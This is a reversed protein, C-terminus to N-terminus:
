QFNKRALSAAVEADKLSQSQRFAEERHRMQQSHTEEAIRLKTSAEVMQRQLTDPLNNPNAPNGEQPQGEQPQGEVSAQEAADRQLKELRKALNWAMEDIQQLRKKIAPYDPEGVMFEAHASAHTHLPFLKPAAEEFIQEGSDIDALLQELADLHVPFQVAHMESPLVQVQNGQMLLINELEATKAEMPPRQNEPAPTYRDAAEVGGITRTLDRIAQQRGQPDFNASLEYVQRMIASRAASSGNGIARVVRVRSPDIAALAEEPVGRAVCRARFEAVYQGGPDQPFYDQRAVRRVTERLLREWPQYFLSLAAVSINALSELHAQVEYRTREKDQRFTAETSYQGAQQQLLTNLDGLGPIISQGFNPYDKQIFKVNPPKIVFPGFHILSLDEIADESEPELMLMSSTMLSDFFRCRLRNLAQVISFVKHGLGRISHFYGNSGVGYCFTNFVQSSNEFRSRNVYLFDDSDELDEPFIYQSVTGNLEKVWMFVLKVESAYAAGTTGLDNNKFERQLTEWENTNANATDGQSAKMLAKKVASVKWGLEKALNEDEIKNFLEHPPVGRVVASIEIEEDSARTQRPILFDGLPAIQWRWDIEDERFAVGVGHALFQHILFQYRPFFEPWGRVMRSFEEAMVHEWDLRATDDGFNTPITCLHDVSEVLDIYPSTAMSLLQEGQGWNVNCSDALGNQRQVAPDHPLEGDLMAQVRARTWASNEDAKKMRKYAEHASKADKIRSRLLKGDEQVPALLTDSTYSTSDNM